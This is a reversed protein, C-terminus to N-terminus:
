PDSGRAGESDCHVELVIFGKPCKPLVGQMSSRGMKLSIGVCFLVVYFFSCM